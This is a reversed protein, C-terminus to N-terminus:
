PLRLGSVVQIIYIAEALGIKGDGNVDGGDFVPEDPVLGCAVQFALIANTLDVEGDGNVDGKVTITSFRWVAGETCGERNDCAVIKWFYTGNTNLPGPDYTTGTYDSAVSPPTMSRGFYIDYTVTDGADPDTSPEWSIDTDIPQGVAGDDPSIYVPESPLQNTTITFFGQTTGKDTFPDDIPDIKLLGNVSDPGTVTWDFAGDNETSEAIVTDFTKGGDRSLSIKVNGTIEPDSPTDWTIPMSRSIVWTSAQMPSTLLLHGTIQNQGGRVCRVDYTETKDDNNSFGDEFDIRWADTIAGSTSIFTTSTWYWDWTEGPFANTDIAPNNKSYDVLSQLENINPVRWDSYGGAQTLPLAECHALADEWTMPDAAQQQWMLGATLDTVTGDGNDVYEPVQEWEGRVARMYANSKQPNPDVTDLFGFAGALFYVAWVETSSGVLPASTWYFRPQTQPFVETNIAPNRGDWFVISTLERVAPMRWDSFGGLGPPINLLSIYTNMAFDWTGFDDTEKAWILGTVEDQVTVWEAATYPLADGSASLKSYSPPNITYDSDEGFTDTYSTTQGTDPVRGASVIGSVSLLLLTLCVLIPIKKM